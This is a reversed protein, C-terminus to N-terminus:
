IKSMIFIPILREEFYEKIFRKADKKSLFFVLTKDVFKNYEVIGGYKLVNEYYASVDIDFYEAIEDPLLLITGNINIEIVYKSSDILSKYVSFKKM